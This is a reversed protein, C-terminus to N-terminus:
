RTLSEFPVDRSAAEHAYGYSHWTREFARAVQGHAEPGNGPLGSGTQTQSPSTLERLVAQSGGVLGVDAPYRLGIRTSDLDIQVCKAKNPKPYFDLYPFSSGVILLTDCEQMADQSPATGLLGLGGTTFPSDDPLVAKGLLAKIVPAGILDALDTIEKGCGLAGRGVLIAVKSGHNIIDAAKQLQQQPPHPHSAVYINRSHEKVNMNSRQADSSKWEQIDKPITVHTVTHRALATRIHRTWLTTSTRPDWLGSTTPQLTWLYSIWISM